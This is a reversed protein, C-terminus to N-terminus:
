KERNERKLETEDCDFRFPFKVTTNCGCCELFQYVAGSSDYDKEDFDSVFVLVGDVLEHQQYMVPLDEVVQFDQRRCVPCTPYGEADLVAETEDPASM